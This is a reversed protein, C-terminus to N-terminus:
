KKNKFLISVVDRENRLHREFEQREEQDMPRHVTVHIGNSSLNSEFKVEEDHFYTFDNTYPEM